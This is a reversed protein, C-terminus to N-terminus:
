MYGHCSITHSIQAYCSRKIVKLVTPKKYLRSFKHLTANSNQLPYFAYQVLTCGAPILHGGEWGLIKLTYASLPLFFSMSNTQSLGSGRLSGGGGVRALSLEPDPSATQLLFILVSLTQLIKYNVITVNM